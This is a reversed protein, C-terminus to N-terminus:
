QGLIRMLSMFSMELGSFMRLLFRVFFGSLASLVFLGAIIRIPFSELFVNIQPIGKAVLGMAANVAFVVAIIPLSMQVALVFMESTRETFFVALGESDALFGPPAQAYSGALAGFFLHHGNSLLFVLLSIVYVTQAVIPIQGLSTPDILNAMGFGIQEGMVQGAFQVASFLIRGVFGFCIGLLAEPLMLSMFELLTEPFVDESLPVVPTMVLSVAIALLVRVRIPLFPDGFLPMFTFFM